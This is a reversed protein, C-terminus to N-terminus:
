DDKLNNVIDMLLSITNKEMSSLKEIIRGNPHVKDSASQVQSSYLAKKIEKAYEKPTYQTRESFRESNARAGTELVLAQLKLEPLIDTKLSKELSSLMRMSNQTIVERRKTIHTNRPDQSVLEGPIEIGSVESVGSMLKTLSEPTYSGKELADFLSKYRSAIKKPIIREGDHVRILGYGDLYAPVSDKGKRGPVSKVTRVKDREGKLEQVNLEGGEYFGPFSQGAIVAANVAATAIVFPIVVPATVPNTLAAVIASAANIALEVLAIAKKRNFAKREIEEIEKANGQALEIRKKAQSEFLGGLAGVLAKTGSIAASTRDRRKQEEEEASELRLESRREIQQREADTIGDEIAAIDAAYGKAAEIREQLEEQVQISANGSQVQANLGEIFAANNAAAERIDNLTEKQFDINLQRIKNLVDREAAERESASLSTNTRISSLEDNLLQERANFSQSRLIFESELSDDVLDLEDKTRDAAAKRIKDNFSDIITDIQGEQQDETLLEFEASIKFKEIARDRLEQLGPISDAGGLQEIELALVIKNAAQATKLQQELKKLGAIATDIQEKSITESTSLATLNNQLSDVQNSIDNLGSDPDLATLKSLEATLPALRQAAQSAKEQLREIQQTTLDVSTSAERAGTGAKKFSIGLQDLAAIAGTDGAKALSVLAANAASIQQANGAFVKEGSSLSGILQQNGGLAQAQAENLTRFEVGLLQLQSNTASISDTAKIQEAAYQRATEEAISMEENVHRQGSVVLVNGENFSRLAENLNVISGVDRFAQAQSSFRGESEIAAEGAARIATTIERVREPFTGTEFDFDIGQIDNFSNFLERLQRNGELQAQTRQETADRIDEEAEKVGSLLGVLGIQTSYAQNARNLAATLEDSSATTLDINGAFGPYISNIQEIIRRQDETVEAGEVAQVNAQSLSEVLGNLETQQDRITDELPIEIWKTFDEILDTSLDTLARVSPNLRSGISVAAADFARVQAAQAAELTNANLAAQKAAEGSDFNARGNAEIAITLEKTRDRNKILQQSALLSERGFIKTLEGATLNKEALKDLAGSLGQAEGNANKTSIGLEDTRGALITIVNRAATGAEAATGYVEGLVEVLAISEATTGNQSAMIGGFKTIAETIGAIGVSGLQAGTALESTLRNTRAVTDAITDTESKFQNSTKTLARVADEFSLDAAAQDLVTAQKSVQELAEASRLLEPAQSGVVAFSNAADEATQGITVLRGDSTELSISFDQARRALDDLGAGTVGTIASLNSLSTEFAAEAASSNEFFERVSRLGEGIGQVIGSIGGGLATGFAIGLLNSQGVIKSISAGFGKTEKSTRKFQDGVNKASREILKVNAIEKKLEANIHVLDAKIKEQQKQGKASGLANDLEFAKDRLNAVVGQSTRLANALSGSSNVSKKLAADIDILSNGVNKVLSDSEQLRSKFQELDASDILARLIVDTIELAM